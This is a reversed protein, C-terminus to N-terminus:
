IKLVEKIISHKVKQSIGILHLDYKDKHINKLLSSASLLSISYESSQGGFVIGLKTM